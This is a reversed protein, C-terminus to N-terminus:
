RRRDLLRENYERTKREIELADDRYRKRRQLEDDLYPDHVKWESGELLASKLMPQYDTRTPWFGPVLHGAPVAEILAIEAIPGKRWATNAKGLQVRDYLGANCYVRAIPASPRYWGAKTTEAKEEALVAQQLPSSLLSFARGCDAERVAEVYEIVAREHMAHKHAAEPSCGVLALVLIPRIWGRLMLRNTKRGWM